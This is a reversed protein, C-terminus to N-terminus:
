QIADKEDFSFPSLTEIDFRQLVLVDKLRRHFQEFQDGMAKKLVDQETKQELISDIDGQYVKFSVPFFRTDTYGLELCKDCSSRKWMREAFWEETDKTSCQECLVPLTYMYSVYVDNDSQILLDYYFCLMDRFSSFTGGGFFSCQQGYQNQFIMEIAQKLHFAEFFFLVDKFKSKVRYLETKANQNDPLVLMDFFSSYGKSFSLMEQGKKQFYDVYASLFSLYVGQQPAGLIMGGKEANILTEEMVKEGCRAIAMDWTWCCQKFFYIDFSIFNKGLSQFTVGVQGLSKLMMKKIENKYPQCQFIEYLVKLFREGKLHKTDVGLDEDKYCLGEKFFLFEFFGKRFSISLSTMQQAVCKQLVNEFFLRDDERTVPYQKESVYIKYLEDWKTKELLFFKLPLNTLFSVTKQLQYLFPNTVMVVLCDEEYLVPLAEYVEIWNRPFMNVCDVSIEQRSVTKLPLSFKESLIQYVEKEKEPYEELFGVYEDETFYEFDKDQVYEEKRLYEILKQYAEEKVFCVM